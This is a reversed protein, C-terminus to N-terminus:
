QQFMSFDWGTAFQMSFLCGLLIGIIFAITMCVWYYKSICEFM